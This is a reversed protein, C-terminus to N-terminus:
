VVQVMQSPEHPVHAQSNHGWGYGSGCKHRMKLPLIQGWALAAPPPPFDWVLSDTQPTKGMRKRLVEQSGRYGQRARRSGLVDEAKRFAAKGKSVSSDQRRLWPYPMCTDFSKAWTPHYFKQAPAMRSEVDLGTGSVGQESHAPQGVPQIEKKNILLRPGLSIYTTLTVWRPLPPAPNPGIDTSGLIHTRGQALLKPAALRPTATCRGALAPVQSQWRSFCSGPPLHPRVPILTGAWSLSEGAKHGM